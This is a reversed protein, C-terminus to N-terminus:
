LYGAKYSLMRLVISSSDISQNNIMFGIFGPDNIVSDLDITAKSQGDISVICITNTIDLRFVHRGSYSQGTLEIPDTNLLGNGYVSTNIGSCSNYKVGPWLNVNGYNGTLLGDGDKQARFIIGIFSGDDKSIDFDFTLEIYYNANLMITSYISDIIKNQSSSYPVDTGPVDGPSYKAINLVGLYSNMELYDASNWNGTEWVGENTDVTKGLLSMTQGIVDPIYFSDYMLINEISLLANAKFDNIVISTNNDRIMFGPKGPINPIFGNNTNFDYTLLLLGDYYYKINNDVLKSTILHQGNSVMAPTNGTITTGINDETCVQLTFDGNALLNLKCAIANFCPVTSDPLKVMSDVRHLTFIDLEVIDTLNFNLKIETNQAFLATITTADNWLYDNQFNTVITNDKILGNALISYQNNNQTYNYINDRGRIWTGGILPAHDHIVTADVDDFNDDVFAVPKILTLNHTAIGAGGSGQAGTNGDNLIIELSITSPGDGIHRYALSQIFYNMLTQFSGFNFTAIAESTKGWTYEGDVMMLETNINGITWTPISPLAAYILGSNGYVHGKNDDANLLFLDNSNVGNARRITLSFGNYVGNHQNSLSDLGTLLTLEPDIITANPDLVITENPFYNVQSVMNLVPPENVHPSYGCTVSNFEIAQDYTGGAGNSYVGTLTTGDCYTSLLSGPYVFVQVVGTDQLVGGIGQLNNGNEDSINWQLQFSSEDIQTLTSAYKISRALENVTQKTPNNIFEISMMGVSYADPDNLLANNFVITNHCIAIIENTSIKRIHSTLDTTYEFDDSLLFKDTAVVVNNIRGLSLVAGNYNGLGTNFADLDPDSISIDPSVNIPVQNTYYIVGTASNYPSLNFTADLEGDTTIKIYGIKESASHIDNTDCTILIKGDITKNIDVSNTYYNLSKTFKGNAGFTTDLTLDTNFKSVIVKTTLNSYDNYFGSVLIKNDNLVIANTYYVDIDTTNTTNYITDITGDTNLRVVVGKNELGNGVLVLQGNTQVVAGYIYIKDFATKDTSSVSGQNGYTTDISGNSNFRVVFYNFDFGTTQLNNGICLIKGDPQLYVLDFGSYDNGIPVITYGNTGFLTDLNGQNDVKLIVSEYITGNNTNGVFLVSDDNLLLSNAIGDFNALFPMSDLIHTGIYFQVIGQDGYTTDITGDSNIRVTTFYQNDLQLLPDFKTSKGSVLYKGTQLKNINVSGVVIPFRLIGTLNFTGDFILSNNLKTVLLGTSESNVDEYMGVTLVNGSDDILTDHPSDTYLGPSDNGLPSNVPQIMLGFAMMAFSPAFNVDPEVINITYQKGNAIFGSPGVDAPATYIFTDGQFDISGSIPTIMYETTINYNTINYVQVQNPALTNPGSISVQDLNEFMYGFTDTGTGTIYSEVQGFKKVLYITDPTLVGPLQNLSKEIKISSM